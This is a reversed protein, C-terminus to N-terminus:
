PTQLLLRKAEDNSVFRGDQWDREAAELDALDEETLPEDDEPARKLARAVPDSTELRLYELFRLAAHVESDPLGDVLQHIREKTTM